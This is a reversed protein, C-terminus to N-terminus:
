KETSMVRVFAHDGYLSVCSVECVVPGAFFCLRRLSLVCVCTCVCISCLYVSVSVSRLRCSGCLAHDGYLSCM